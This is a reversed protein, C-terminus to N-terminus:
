FSLYKISLDSLLKSRFFIDELATQLEEAKSMADHFASDEKVDSTTEVKKAEIRFEENELKGVFYDAVRFVTRLSDWHAKDLREFLQALRALSPMSFQRVFYEKTAEPALLISVLGGAFALKRSIRLKLYRLGWEKAGGEWRKAQYDVAITRWYRIFDNLLFRPVGKKPTAYDVLYRDILLGLLQSHAKPDYISCSEQLLLARRSHNLNTDQELGIREM